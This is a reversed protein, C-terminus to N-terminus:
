LQTLSTKSFKAEIKAEAKVKAKADAEAKVEAKNFKAEIKAEAKVKAKADAEAKVEAKDKNIYIFTPIQKYDSENPVIVLSFPPKGSSIEWRIQGFSYVDSGHKILCQYKIYAPMGHVISNSILSM